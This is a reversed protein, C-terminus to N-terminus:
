FPIETNDIAKFFNDKEKENLAYFIQPYIKSFKDKMVKDFTLILANEYEIATAIVILDNAPLIANPPLSHILPEVKKGFRLATTELITANLIDYIMLLKWLKEQAISIPTRNRILAFLTEFIVTTPIVIRVKGLYQSLLKKFIFLAKEHSLDAKNMLAVVFSSDEVIFTKKM